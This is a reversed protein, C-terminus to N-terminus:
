SSSGHRGKVELHCQCCKYARDYEKSLNKLKFGPFVSPWQLVRTRIEPEKFISPSFFSFMEWHKSLPSFWTDPCLSSVRIMNEQFLKRYHKSVSTSESKSTYPYFSLINGLILLCHFPGRVEAWTYLTSLTGKTIQSTQAERRHTDHAEEGGSMRMWSTEQVRRLFQHHGAM